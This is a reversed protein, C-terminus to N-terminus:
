CSKIVSKNIYIDFRNAKGNLKLDVKRNNKIEEAEIPRKVVVRYTAKKLAIDLLQEADNDEGVIEKILRMNKKNLASNNKPPFMPDLYIIDATYNNLLSIADGYILSINTIIKMVDKHEKAALLAKELLSHIHQNREIMTVKAGLAALIFSDVGFGACSDIILPNKLYQLGCAKAILQKKGGGNKLRYLLKPNTFSIDLNSNINNEIM